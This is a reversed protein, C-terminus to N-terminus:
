KVKRRDFVPTNVLKHMREVYASCTLNVETLGLQASRYGAMSVATVALYWLADDDLKDVDALVENLSRVKSM